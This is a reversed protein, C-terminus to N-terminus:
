RPRENERPARELFGKQIWGGVGGAYEDARTILSCRGWGLINKLHCIMLGAWCSLWMVDFDGHSRGVGGWM